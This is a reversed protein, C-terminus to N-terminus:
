FFPVRDDGGSGNTRTTDTVGGAAPTAPLGNINNLNGSINGSLPRGSGLTLIGGLKWDNFLLHAARNDTLANVSPALLFNTVWRRRIDFISPGKESRRDNSDYPFPGNPFNAFFTTSSQGNDIAKALTFNSSFQVGRRFRKNATLV